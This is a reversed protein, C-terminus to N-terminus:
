EDPFKVDRVEFRAGGAEGDTVGIRWGHAESVQMVIALGLGTGDDATSYGMDFIERMEAEPIGPGDDEVYFGDELPGVEIRVASGAHEVANRFLNEFFHQLRTPDATIAPASDTVLRAEGTKVNSWCRDALSALEVRQTEGVAEGTRAMTLTKEVLQEMRDLARVAADIHDSNYSEQALELHGIAVNMPNQLDHSVISAFKDLRENRRQLEQARQHETIDVYLAHTGIIEGEPDRRPSARLLTAIRDGEATLLEREEKVFEGSLAREYGGEDLLASESDESYFTGLPQHVLDTRDYGLTEAFKRNCDDIVPVGDEDRTFCFMVPADEFLERYQQEYEHELTQLERERQRRETIDQVTGNMAVAVGDDDRLVEAQEHVFRVEGDARVIRHDVQYTDGSELADDVATQVLERDGPHVRDIFREYTPDHDTPDLGFIRYVQTSWYLEGSPVNWEWNGLNAIRQARALSEERRQLAQRSRYGDVANQIRNALMAYQHTGSEKQLYDTVGRSIADSAIEESGRGTFLIFPLDPHDDRVADLFELGDLGPMNYDSVICDVAAEELRALGAEADTETLVTITEREREIMEAVLEAQDHDDDVHLVTILASMPESRATAVM